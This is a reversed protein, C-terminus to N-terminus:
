KYLNLIYRFHIQKHGQHTFADTEDLLENKQCIFLRTHQVGGEREGKGRHIGHREGM